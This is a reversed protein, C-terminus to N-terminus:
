HYNILTLPIKSNEDNFSVVVYIDKYNSELYKNSDFTIRYIGFESYNKNKIIKLNDTYISKDKALVDIYIETPLEFEDTAPSIVLECRYRPHINLSARWFDNSGNMDIIEKRTSEMYFILCMSM